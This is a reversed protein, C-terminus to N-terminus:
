PTAEPWPLAAQRLAEFHVRAYRATSELSQHGLLDAICKLTVGRRQLETALRYRLVQAGRASLGLRAFAQSMATGVQSRSLAVDWPPRHRVFVARALTHPRGRQLYRLIARAVPPPLPLRRERRQKTRPLHLVGRRWDLDELQLAAAESARLGLEGLCLALAYNRCGLATTRDFSALFRRYEQPPLGPPLNERPWPALAPVVQDLYPRVQKTWALFRLFGRLGSALNRATPAPFSQACRAVYGMVEPPGLQKLGAPRKRELWRLFRQAQAQRNRRTGAALGRVQALYRDYAHLLREQSTLEQPTAPPTWGQERLFLLWRHLARRCVQIRYAAWRRRRCRAAYTRVYRALADEGFASLATGRAKLWDRCNEAAQRYSGITARSYGRAQLDLVFSTEIITLDGTAKRDGLCVQHRQQKDM